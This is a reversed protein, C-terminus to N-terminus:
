RLDDSRDVPISYIELIRKEAKQVRDRNLVIQIGESSTFVVFRTDSSHEVERVLDELNNIKEGNVAVIQLDHYDHYGSNVQAPLVKSLVVVQEHKVKARAHGYLAVLNKPAKEYWDDGWAMLYNQTLPIFLLGGYIFYTPRVDYRVKPILDNAGIPQTLTFPITRVKGNRLVKLRLTDGIQHLQSYYDASTREKIRFEVTGDNAVNQGDVAVIVDGPKIHGDASSGPM